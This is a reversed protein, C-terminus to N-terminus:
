FFFSGFSYLYSVASIEVFPSLLFDRFSHTDCGALRYSLSFQFNARSLEIMRCASIAKESSRHKSHNTVGSATTLQYNSHTLKLFEEITKESRDLRNRERIKASGILCLRVCKTRESEIEATGFLLSKRSDSLIRVSMESVKCARM